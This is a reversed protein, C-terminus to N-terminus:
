LLAPRRTNPYEAKRANMFERYLGDMCLMLGGFFRFSMFAWGRRRLRRISRASPSMSLPALM